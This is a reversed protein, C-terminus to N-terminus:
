FRTLGGSVGKPEIEHLAKDIFRLFAIAGTIAIVRWDIADKSLSDILVPIIALVVVRGAEKLGSLIAEKTM